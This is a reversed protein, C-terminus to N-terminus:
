AREPPMPCARLMICGSPPGRAEGSTVRAGRVAHRRPSGARPHDRAAGRARADGHRAQALGFAPRGESELESLRAFESYLFRRTIAELRNFGIVTIAQAATSVRGRDGFIDNATDLIMAALPEVSDIVRGMREANTRPDKIMALIRRAVFCVDDMALANRATNMTVEEMFRAAGCGQPSGEFKAYNRSGVKEDDRDPPVHASFTVPV